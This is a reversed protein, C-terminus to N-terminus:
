EVEIKFQINYESETNPFLISPNIYYNDEYSVIINKNRLIKIINNLNFPSINLKTRIIERSTPGFVTKSLQEKTYNLSSNQAYLNCLEVLVEFERNTLKLYGNLCQLYTSYLEEKKIKKRLIKEM